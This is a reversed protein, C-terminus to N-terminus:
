DASRRAYLRVLPAATTGHVVTSAVVALMGIAFVRPDDVGQDRAHALYFVASVGMPGFWGAFAADRGRMGIPARSALVAPLRRVLLVGVVVLVVGPGM